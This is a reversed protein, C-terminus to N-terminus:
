FAVRALLYSLTSEAGQNLNIAKRGVGDYCGGTTGDYVVQNLSNDGLFWNFACHMLDLYRHDKTVEYCTKLACVMASVEQPQQDNNNRKGEKHYWGDQGVPIYIGEVFCEKILFDLTTKGVKLYENHGVARYGLLLAEPMIPNSYTISSEFWQWDPSSTGEYLSILRNNQEEIAQEVNLGSVAVKNEFLVCLAKSWRALARPSSFAAKGEIKSQLLEMAKERVKRPLAGTASVVALAYLARSSADELDAKENRARDLKHDYRVYNWFLGDTQSVFQIFDLYTNVLQLLVRKQKITVPNTVSRGLKRYYSASAVLARANDDLTYGSKVDPRNLKAFQIIGFNDTLRVLHDLKIKPLSKRETIRAQRPVLESFVKSYQVAVNLWIMRRTKFYANKGMQSRLGEDELLRLIADTYSQPDRFNVLIGVDDTILERANAFSTSIVPRGIGLAYSLTGSVAQNPELGPSIYIDTARLFRLLEGLPFFRNYLKVHDFLGLRYIKEIIENRYSEGEERLVVPHTAGFYIYVFSPFRKIVEPLAEVVYELGKGRNLLGFTSLVVRDSFGLALKDSRSSTFPQPHIGHPIVRIKKDPIGYDEVLIKKSLATMVTIANVSEALDRVANRLREDPGPIVTHFNVVAPKKLARTFNLLYSGFEGGFIGFEHQINVLRVEKMRNIERAIPLYDHENKQNFQFLVNKPYNYSLVDDPNLAAIKSKIMPSLLTDMAHTLDYTFTAIGCKRPPFTSVYLICLGGDVHHSNGRKKDAKLNAM